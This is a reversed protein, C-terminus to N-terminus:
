RKEKKRRFRFSAHTDRHDIEDRFQQVVLRSAKDGPTVVLQRIARDFQDIFAQPVKFKTTLRRRCRQYKQLSTVDAPVGLARCMLFLEVHVRLERSGLTRTDDVIYSNMHILKEM